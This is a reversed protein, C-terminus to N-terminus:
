SSQQHGNAGASVRRRGRGAGFNAVSGKLSHAACRLSEADRAATARGIERVLEPCHALFTETIERLLDTDGDFHDLLTAPDILTHGGGLVTATGARSASAPPHPHSVAEIPM